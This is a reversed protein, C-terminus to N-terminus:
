LPFDSTHWHKLHWTFSLAQSLSSSAILSCKLHDGSQWYMFITPAGGCWCDPNVNPDFAENPPKPVPDPWNTLGRSGFVNWIHLSLPFLIPHNVSLSMNPNVIIAIANSSSSKNHNLHRWNCRSALSAASRKMSTTNSLCSSFTDNGNYLKINYIANKM